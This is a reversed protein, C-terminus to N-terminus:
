QHGDLERFAARLFANLFRLGKGTLAPRDKQLLGRSEWSAFTQPILDRIDRRFRKRFLATDPGELCRFGMLLSERILASSDLIEETQPPRDGPRRTIYATIDPKVDVRLGMGSRDDILTGSAAPGLGFWNRMHWYRLNHRSEKGPLAFNSVEYRTYGAAELALSGALWLEDATDPDPLVAAGRDARDSLPTGEELTLAYLSVHGPEYSLVTEIDKQLIYEDQFPLGSILDVSFSGPFVAAIEELRRSLASGEGIRHVAQRSPEHFSQVGV